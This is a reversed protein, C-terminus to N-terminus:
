ALMVQQKLAQNIAEIADTISIKKMYESLKYLPPLEIKKKIEIGNISVAHNQLHNLASTFSSRHIAATM